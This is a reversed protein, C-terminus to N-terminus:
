NKYFESKYKTPSIGYHKKFNKTFSQLTSFGLKQSVEDITLFDPKQLLEPALAMRSNLYKQKFSMGYYKDTLRNLQRVSIKLKNAAIEPSMEVHFGTFIDNLIALRKDNYDLSHRNMVSTPLPEINKATLLFVHLLNLWLETLNMKMDNNKAINYINNLYAVANYNDEGFYSKNNIITDFANDFDAYLNANDFSKDTKIPEISVRFGLESTPTEKPSIQSHLVQPGTIFFTGPRNIYKKGEITVDGMGSTCFHFEFFPHDHGAILYHVPPTRTIGEIKINYSCTSFNLNVGMHWVKPLMVKDFRSDLDM